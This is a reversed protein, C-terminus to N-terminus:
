TSQGSRGSGSGLGGEPRVVVSLLAILAQRGQIAARESRAQGLSRRPLCGKGPITIM